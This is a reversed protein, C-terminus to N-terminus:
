LGAACDGLYLVLDESHTLMPYHGADIEKYGADLRRATRQLHSASPRRSKLCCLVDAKWSMAWFRSLDVPDDTAARPQPTYRAQAWARLEPDEIDLFSSDAGRGFTLKTTDHPPRENIQPVSEGPIPVLADIFVLRGIREHAEEAARAVVMGGSSTGVMIVNHLDEFYLLGALELGHSDLTIGARLSPAREGCGDSTPCYVRHGQERLGEAVSRWIWGGTFAGHVLVYTAM